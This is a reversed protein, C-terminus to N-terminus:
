DEINAFIALKSGTLKAWLRDGFSYHWWESPYNILGVKELASKLIQRNKKATASIKEADFEAESGFGRVKGGMDFEVGQKNVLTVDVAGGSQHGSGQRYPNAAYTNCIKIFEESTIDLNPFEQKKQAVVGDWLIIQASKPRYAEYLCFSYGQPLNKQAKKILNYIYTRIRRESTYKDNFYIGDKEDILSLNVPTEIECIIEPEPLLEDSFM